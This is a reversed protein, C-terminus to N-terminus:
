EVFTAPNVRSQSKVSFLKEWSFGDLQEDYGLSLVHLVPYALIAMGVVPYLVYRRTIRHQAYTGPTLLVYRTFNRWSGTAQRFVASCRLSPAFITKYGAERIHISLDFDEHMDGTHCLLPKSAQWVSRRLALNVGQLTYQRGLSWALYRRIYQDLMSFFRAWPVYHYDVSGSAAGIDEAAFVRQVEAVWTSPLITDADIRGIIDGTAADFGTTRAFVVGQRPEHLLRVFPFRHAIAATQDTSNNNVVIVETPRVTQQAISTLCDRLFAEENYVPIVISVTLPKPM